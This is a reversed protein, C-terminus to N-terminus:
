LIKSRRAVLSVMTSSIVLAPYLAASLTSNKGSCDKVIKERLLYIMGKLGSQM